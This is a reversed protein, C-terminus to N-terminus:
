NEHFDFFYFFIIQITFHVSATEKAAQIQKLCENSDSSEINIITYDKQFINCSSMYTLFDCELIIKEHFSFFPQKVYWYGINRATERKDGTIM